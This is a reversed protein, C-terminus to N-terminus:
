ITNRKAEDWNDGIGVEVEVPVSLKVENEMIERMLQAIKEAESTPAEVILEDHVTLILKASVAPLQYSIASLKKHLEIMALKLIEAATGQVPTNIAMRQASEAINRNASNIEPLERRFGFLTEVYGQKKALAIQNECYRKIGSHIKFYQLIYRSAEEQKIGLTQSLGYPSIGYLVGFNVTKAIRRQDKTVKEVPTSFIESATKSHIDVGNKFAEMMVADQALCAVVRLEIQSYDASILKYGKEAIFASRIEPGFEGRIPINQLNPSLSSLRGTRTDEGFTTHLRSNEDVLKPLPELYTSILKSLERYELIKDIIKHEGRLKMLESAGTSIGSKNRKIDVTPLKLKKFLIESLQSPSAVNFEEGALKQIEAELKRSKAALKKSLKGLLEVNLKIGTKEMERLVPKLERDIDSWKKHPVICGLNKAKTLINKM